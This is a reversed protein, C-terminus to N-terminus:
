RCPAAASWPSSRVIPTASSPALRTPCAKAWRPLTGSLSGRMKIHRAYWNAASGSDSTLIADDPLRPSLEGFVQEPNIPDTATAARRQMVEWWRAVKGQVDDKWSRDSKRELLPILRALTAQADGVLNEEYPYRLGIRAGDLDISVARAQGFEPMFQTYPFNAGVTLLTDWDMM